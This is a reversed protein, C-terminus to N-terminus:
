QAAQLLAQVLHDAAAIAEPQERLLTRKLMIILRRCNMKAFTSTLARDARSIRRDLEARGSMACSAECLKRYASVISPATSVEFVKQGLLLFTLDIATEKSMAMLRERQRKDMMAPPAPHEFHCFDCEAGNTCTGSAYFLCSRACLSPHGHSGRSAIDDAGKPEVKSEMTARGLNGPKPRPVGGLGPAPASSSAVVERHAAASTAAAAEFDDSRHHEWEILMGERHFSTGSVQAAGVPTGGTNVAGSLGIQKVNSTKEEEHQAGRQSRPIDVHGAVMHAVGLGAATGMARMEYPLTGISAEPAM